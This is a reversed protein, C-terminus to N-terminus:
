NMFEDLMERLKAADDRREDILNNQEMPDESLDYFEELDLHFDVILKMNDYVVTRLHQDLATYPLLESFVPRDPVGSRGLLVDALSEGQFQEPIPLGFLDLLTPGIDLVSVQGEVEMPFWGPVRVLKPVNIAANYLTHGHFYYGHENFEEGHDSTIIFIVDDYLEEEKLKDILKGVYHDAHAIESDYANILREHNNSGRGFDFDDHRTYRAHPDFFHVFLTFPQAEEGKERHERGLEELTPEVKEWIRPTAIDTHSDELEKMGENDWLDFGQTLGRRERFYFHSTMAINQWGEEQLVEYLSLNEPRVRPFNATPVFWRLQSAYRGFFIPPVTRPTQPSTAYANLFVASDAALADINPSTNRHYGAYGLHDQRLTDVMVFVVNKPPEPIAEFENRQEREGRRIAREVARRAPHDPSTVPLLQEEEEVYCDDDDEDCADFAFIGEQQRDLTVFHGAVAPMLPADRLVLARAEANDVVWGPAVFFCSAVVAAGAVPVGFSWAGREFRLRHFILTLLPTLFVFALGMQMEAASWVHLSSAYWYAGAAGGGIGLGYLGLVFWSWFPKDRRGPLKNLVARVAGYLLPSALAVGASLGTAAMALAQAQFTARNFNSTVGLHVAMVGAGVVAVCLPFVVMVSAVARDRAPDGLAQSLPLWDLRRFVALWTAIVAGFGLGYLIQPLGLFGFAAAVFTMGTGSALDGAATSVVLFGWLTLVLASVVGARIGDFISRM